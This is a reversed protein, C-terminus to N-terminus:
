NRFTLNKMKNEMIKRDKKMKMKNARNDKKNKNRTAM